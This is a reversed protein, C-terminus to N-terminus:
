EGREELHPFLSVQKDSVFYHEVTDDNDLGFNEKAWSLINGEGVWLPVTVCLYEWKFDKKAVLLTVKKDYRDGWCDISNKASAIADDMGYYGYCCGDEVEEGSSDQISYGYVEGNSWQRYAELLSDKMKDIDRTDALRELDGVPVRICVYGEIRDADCDGPDMEIIDLGGGQNSRCRIPYAVYSPDFQERWEAYLEYAEAASRGLTAAEPIDKGFAGWKGEGWQLHSEGANEMGARGLRYTRSGYDNGAAALYMEEEGWDPEDSDSDPVIDVTFGKYEFTHCTYKPM